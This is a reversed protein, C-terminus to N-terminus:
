KGTGYKVIAGSGSVRFGAPVYLGSEQGYVHCPRKRGAENSSFAFGVERQLMVDPEKEAWFEMRFFRALDGIPVRWAVDKKPLRAWDERRLWMGCCNHRYDKAIWRCPWSWLDPIGLLESSAHASKRHIKFPDAKKSLTTEIPTGPENWIMNFHGGFLAEEIAFGHEAVKAGLFFPDTDIDRSRGDRAFTLAHCVEHALEVAFSFRYALLLPIDPNKGQQTETASTLIEQIATNYTVVSGIGSLYRANTRIPQTEHVATTTASGLPLEPDARFVVFEALEDLSDEILKVDRRTVPKLDPPCACLEKPSNPDDDDVEGLPILPGHTLITRLM